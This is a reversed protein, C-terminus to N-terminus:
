RCPAPTKEAIDPRTAAAAYPYHYSWSGDAHQDRKWSNDIRQWVETPVEYDCEAAAWIGLAGYNSCSMDYTKAPKGSLIYTFLGDNAKDGMSAIMWEADAKILAALEPTRPLLSYVQLREAMAYVGIIKTQNLFKVASAIRPDTPREGAALLSHTILATLGGFQAGETSYQSDSTPAAVKEWTGNAQEKYLYEKAREIADNVQAATAARAPAPSLAHLAFAALVITPM